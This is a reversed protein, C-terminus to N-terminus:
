GAHDEAIEHEHGALGPALGAGAREAGIDGRLGLLHQLVDRRNELGGSRAQLVHMRQPTKRTSM